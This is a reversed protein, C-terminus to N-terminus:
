LDGFVRAKIGAAAAKREARAGGGGLVSKNEIARRSLYPLVEILAGYPVYKLVMPSSSRTRDVIYNTLTDCMGYLQAMTVREAVENGVEIVADNEAIGVVNALRKEVLSDLILRVSDWNHSGFLVGVAPSKAKAKPTEQPTKGGFIRFFSSSSGKPPAISLDKAVEDLIIQICENYCADTEPKTPWVPPLEDPSISLSRSKASNRTEHSKTEYPHYAGRVLKVGLAYGDAKADAFSELLYNKNRRLYAQFTVYVLPQIAPADRAIPMKNFKRMLALGFADIAPQYWSHEADIIVKVGREQARTCIRILDDHLEKLDDLDQQTLTTATQPKHLVDLDTSRPKGPFAIPVPLEPRTDIIHKSLALLSSANPLLATLKIAVWTRRGKDKSYGDEFDAAVDICRIMEQVIRKHVPQREGAKSGGGAEAEDVEVSYAFLCGKNEARLDKLVPLTEHATDGGVFQDFFTVRVIAETVHKLVPISLCTSLVTPSLDVLGPISCVTYVVYSRILSSLPTPQRPSRGDKDDPPADAHLPSQSYTFAVTATLAAGTALFLTSVPRRPPPPYTQATSRFSRVSQPRLSSWLRSSPLSTRLLRLSM